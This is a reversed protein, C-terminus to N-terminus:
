PVVRSAVALSYLEDYLAGGQLRGRAGCTCGRAAACLLATALSYLSLIFYCEFPCM